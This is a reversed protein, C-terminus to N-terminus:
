AKITLLQIAETRRPTSRVKAASDAKAREFLRASRRSRSSPNQFVAGFGQRLRALHEPSDSLPGIGSQKHNINFDLWYIKIPYKKLARGAAAGIINRTTEDPKFFFQRDVTRQVECYATDKRVWRPRNAM